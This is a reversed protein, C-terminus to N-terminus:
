RKAVRPWTGDENKPEILLVQEQYLGADQITVELDPLHEYTDGSYKNWLRVEVDEAINFLSRMKKVM